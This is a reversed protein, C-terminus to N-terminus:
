PSAVQETAPASSSINIRHSIASMWSGKEDASDAKLYYTRGTKQKPKLIFECDHLIFECDDKATFITPQLPFLEHQLDTCVSDHDVSTTGSSFVYPSEESEISRIKSVKIRGLEISSSENKFYRLNAGDFRFFSRKYETNFFGRKWLWGEKTSSM